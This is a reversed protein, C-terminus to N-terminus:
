YYRFRNLINIFTKNCPLFFFFNHQKRRWMWERGKEGQGTSYPSNTPDGVKWSPETLPSGWCSVLPLVSLSTPTNIGWSRGQVTATPQTFKEAQLQLEQWIAMEPSPERQTEAKCGRRTATFCCCFCHYWFWSVARVRSDGCCDWARSLQRM